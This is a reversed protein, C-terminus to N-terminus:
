AIYCFAANAILSCLMFCLASLIASHLSLLTLLPPPPRVEAKVVQAKETQKVIGAGAGVAQKSSTLADLSIEAALFPRYRCCVGRWCESMMHSLM